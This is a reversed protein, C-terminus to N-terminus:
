LSPPPFLLPASPKGPDEAEEPHEPGGRAGSTLPGTPFPSCLSEQHELAPTHLSTARLGGPLCLLSEESSETYPANLLFSAPNMQRQVLCTALTPAHVPLTPMVERWLRTRGKSKTNQARVERRDRGILGPARTWEPSKRSKGPRERWSVEVEAGPTREERQPM